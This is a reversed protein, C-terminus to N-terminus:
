FHLRYVANTAMHLGQKEYFRRKFCERARSALVQLRVVQKRLAYQRAFQLLRTGIGQDRYNQHVVLDEVSLQNGNLRLVPTIRLSMMGVITSGGHIALIVILAPDALLGYYFDRLEDPTWQYGLHGLLATVADLDDEGAPRLAVSMMPQGIQLAAEM